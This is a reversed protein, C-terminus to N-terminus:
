TCIPHGPEVHAHKMSSGGGARRSAVQGNVRDPTDAFPFFVTPESAWSAWFAEWDLNDLARLFQEAAARIGALEGPPTSQAATVPTQALAFAVSFVLGV